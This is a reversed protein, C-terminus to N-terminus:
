FCCSILKSENASESENSGIIIDLGVDGGDYEDVDDDDDIECCSEWGWDDVVAAVGVDGVFGVSLVSGHKYVIL